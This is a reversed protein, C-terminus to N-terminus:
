HKIITMLQPVFINQLLCHVTGSPDPETNAESCKEGYYFYKFKTYEPVQLRVWLLGQHLPVGTTLDREELVPGGPEAERLVGVPELHRRQVQVMLLVMLLVLLIVMLLVMLIVMLLVMLLVM